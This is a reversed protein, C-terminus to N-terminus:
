QASARASIKTEVQQAEHLHAQLRKLSEDIQQTATEKTRGDFKTM